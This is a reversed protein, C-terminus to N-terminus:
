PMADLAQLAKQGAPSEPKQRLLDAITQRAQTKNGQQLYLRALNLYSEEYAPVLRICTQFQQEAALNNEERVYLVGLNNLAEPYDPRLAAAKQLLQEATQLQNQQAFLLGLSYNAEPDDPQLALARTLSSEAAPFNRQRRYVNGLNLLATAYGPRLQLSQQFNTIAEDAHGQQAAMMGLNNWAEPYNPKLKLTQELYRRAAPFNNGRLNLTGLNYYGEANDPHAAVVQQFSEAAQALYGHQYMAVGYTFDNRQFSGAHLTGPFPLARRIRDAPTSPVSRVDAQLSDISVPGQYVKVISGERDLLFSTPLALNRRRDFLYRLILNYVGAIEETAFLIPFALHQAEALSQAQPQTSPSDINIAILTLGAASLAAHHQQLLHLQDRCVPSATSWLHLLTSRGLLAQLAQPTGALNPLSFAPAPLPELLWTETTSSPVQEIAPAAAPSPTYPSHAAFPIAAFTATGEELSISHNRPLNSFHQTLGSPWHITAEIPSAGTGVGFFLQKSHQSLFGSGAQLSRTQKLPGATLTISTGIADRNSKTGRLRFSVSDGLDAMFNHLIRLQPANRNKLVVELRGDGDLDALAFSRGDELFDLGIAGSIETFTGDRNNALFVNRESGSWSSDSRILENLANWGHEYALSPTADDPSRGVVQRWFFSGLDSVQEALTGTPSAQPSGPAHSPATIYGNSVYLDPFGDHDFDWFDSGWAWRGVEVGAEASTNRFTGDGQNRYLANGRAHRRYLDRAQETAEPHFPKQQAVRQGAASWMNATYLDPRGDNDTDAWCASMGAGVDEVHARTASAEFTGDGKNRYFNNRGFDNVVYLDPLQGSSANGWACAFSYRDNDAHLGAAETRDAFSGNGQNHFLFNPPGNRADFYPAPYHYQDLGLYYSYLCFYIDLRGDGDYDAIAAHTFTGQPPQAFHFADGKLAFTGDGRNLFLLPGSGSVVLLDQLGSNRLDAFLACATNDLVGVGARDTVDEFTGDGRNRYLRNPLGAPQCIYLDDHGDNDFDGVAVGNNGYVDIGCAGDLVTRWHDAGHLLQAQFSPVDRFGKPAVDLFGPGHVSARTEPDRAWRTVKWTASDAVGPQRRWQLDWTGVRQERISAGAQLVITYRVSTAVTLPERALQEIATIEFDAYDVRTEPGLDAEMDHLLREVGQLTAGSFERRASTVGDGSRLPNVRSPVPSAFHLTDELSHRLNSLRGSGIIQRWHNLVLGIEHAYLETPYEDLGPPVLRLVDELPSRVPYSPTYRPDAFASPPRPVSNSLVPAGFVGFLPSPRLAFPALGLHRLLDRRSLRSRDYRPRPM